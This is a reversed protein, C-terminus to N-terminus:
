RALVLTMTMTVKMLATSWSAGVNVCDGGSCDAKHGSGHDCAKGNGGKPIQVTYTKKCDAECPGFAGKCDDADDVSM